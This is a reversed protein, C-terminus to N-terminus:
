TNENQIIESVAMRLASIGTKFPYAGNGLGTNPDIWEYFASQMHSRKELLKSLLLKCEELRSFRNRAMIEIGTIWPWFTYNHYQYTSRYWPGSRKLELESILPM